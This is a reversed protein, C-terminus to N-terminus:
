LEFALPKILHLVAGTNACLRIINGTNGAIEPRFLVVNLMFIEIEFISTLKKSVCVNKGACAYKITLYTFCVLRSNDHKLM